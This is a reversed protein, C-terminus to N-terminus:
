HGGALTFGWIREAGHARLTKAAASMTSGTTYVDDVLIISRPVSGTVEFVGEFSREQRQVSDKLKAQAKFMYKTRHLLDLGVPAGLEYGLMTALLKAQDFGRQRYRIPHLPVPVITWKDSPLQENLELWRSVLLEIDKEAERVYGYKWQKVLRKVSGRAYWCPSVIGDLEHDYHRSCRAGYVTTVDCAPCHQQKRYVFDARCRECWLNGDRQCDVCSLPFVADRLWKATQVIHGM